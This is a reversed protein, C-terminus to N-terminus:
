YMPMKEYWEMMAKDYGEQDIETSGDENTFTFSEIDPKPFEKAFYDEYNRYKPYDPSHGGFLSADKGFIWPQSDSPEGFFGEPYGSYSDENGTFLGM